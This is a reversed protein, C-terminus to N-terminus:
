RSLMISPYETKNVGRAISVGPNFLPLVTIIRKPDIATRQQTTEVIAKESLVNPTRFMCHADFLLWAFALANLTCWIIAM